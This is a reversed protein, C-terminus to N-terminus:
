ENGPITPAVYLDASMGRDVVIDQGSIAAADAHALFAYVSAIEEASVASRLPVRAFENRLHQLTPEDWYQDWKSVDVWGPSVCNVRIGRPGLEVALTRTLGVVAAKAASYSGSGTAATTAYVSGMNLITGGSRLHPSFAAVTVATGVVDVMLRDRLNAVFSSDDTTTSPAALGANNVLVDVGNHPETISAAAANMSDHDSVDGVVPTVIVGSDDRLERCATELRKEDRGIIYVSAGDAAFRGATALGIGSGGGTVVVIRGAHRQSLRPQNTM